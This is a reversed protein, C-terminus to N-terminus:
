ILERLFQLAKERSLHEHRSQNRYNRICSYCSSDGDCDCDQLIREAVILVHDLKESISQSLGSGGPTTDFLLINKISSTTSISVSSAIDASAVGLVRAAAMTLAAALSELPGQCGAEECSCSYIKESTFQLRIVDTMYEHGFTTRSLIGSCSREKRPDQHSAAARGSGALPISYGCTGCLWFLGTSLTLLKADQSISYNIKGRNQWKDGLLSTSSAFTKTHAVKRPKSKSGASKTDVKAVFGFKPQLFKIASAPNLPFGCSECNTPFDLILSADDPLRKHIFWGCSDCTLAKYTLSGFNINAPKVVGASSLIKGGAVVESGPSYESIALSLDRSLEIKGFDGTTSGFSPALTAVDVPFGYKPLVGGNALLEIFQRNQLNNKVKDLREARRALRLLEKSDLGPASIQTKAEDILQNLEEIESSYLLAINALWAGRGNSDESRLTEVWGWEDIELKSKVADSLGLKYVEQLLKTPRSDLWDLFGDSISKVLPQPEFFDEAKKGTFAVDRLYESLAMAFIHRRVLDHNELNVIPVPIRGKILRIPDVIYQADHSRKRAFTTILAKDGARGARGARQVYNAPTPPVNRCLVSVVKGIDVGMEFTTSCSLVNVQGKIFEDQVEEAEEATWQATHEKSTLKQIMLNKYLFRYHDGEPLAMHIVKGICKKTVCGQNPLSWWSYKRCEPCYKQPLPASDALCVLWSENSISKQGTKEDKFVGDSILSVWLEGMIIRFDQDPFTRKIMNTRKNEVSTKSM